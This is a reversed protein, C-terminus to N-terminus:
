DANQVVYSGDLEILGVSFLFLLAYYLRRSEFWREGAYRDAIEFISARAQGRARMDKLVRYGIIAPSAELDEGTSFLNPM